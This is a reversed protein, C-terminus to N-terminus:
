TGHELGDRCQDVLDIAVQVVPEGGLSALRVENVGLVVNEALLGGVAELAARATLRVDGGATNPGEAVGRAECGGAKLVVEARVTQDSSILGVGTCLIRPALGEAM